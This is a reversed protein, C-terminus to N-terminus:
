SDDVLRLYVAPSFGLLTLIQQQLPSLPTVHRPTFGPASVVTLTVEGFAELLCEATPQATRRNPNGAFLGALEEQQAGLRQRVVGELLTLVRLALTLLRVLGLRHDDRQVYLPALSLPRGKLRSFNREVLYEDRYAEVAQELTLQESLHNTAYVRWGLQSMAKGIATEQRSSTLTFTLERRVGALRGRYARVRREHVHEQIHVQLLGEIRFQKLVAKIAEEVEARERLRPKGQRRATLEQLAREAKQLRERLSAQAAQTAALSQVLLRREQWTHMQGEVQATVSHTTEYGQAICTRMGQEDLRCVEILRAGQKRQIEVEQSVQEPPAQLASLPCLYFDAQAQISARTQLAAMKCDGVYLLGKQQLGDRVRAIIPLYVPDDAHEGSLVESALPMGLPDLSALVLKLQPLDPRHDKSHGLQLLGEENVQAYSSATTTDIRVCTASLDYVRLLQGMLEQEFAQWHVDDSLLRLVDALRDDTVDQPCLAKMGCGRLTELRRSAWEQVRNMRHDAQSLIHALWVVSLEGVSLGKRQGHTPIHKDLLQAVKMRQMHTILLPIDDMRETEISLAEKM